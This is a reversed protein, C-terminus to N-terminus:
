QNPDQVTLETTPVLSIHTNRILVSKMTGGGTGEAGVATTLTDTGNQFVIKNQNVRGKFCYTLLASAGNAITVTDDAYIAMPYQSGDSSGSDTPLLKASSEVEGMLTGRVITVPSGTSNTYTKDDYENDGLFIQSVDYNTVLQTAPM